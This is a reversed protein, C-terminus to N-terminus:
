TIGGYTYEGAAIRQRTRFSNNAATLGIGAYGDPLKEVQQETLLNLPSIMLCIAKQNPNMIPACQWIMSKGYGTAAQFLIDISGSLLLDLALVQGKRPKKSTIQQMRASVDRLRAANLPSQAPPILEIFEQSSRELDRSATNAQVSRALEEFEGNQSPVFTMEFSGLPALSPLNEIIVAFAFVM